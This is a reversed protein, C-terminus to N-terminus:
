FYKKKWNGEKGEKQEGGRGMKWGMWDKPLSERSADVFDPMGHQPQVLSRGQMLVSISIGGYLIPKLFCTWAGLIPRSGVILPGLFLDFLVVTVWMWLTSNGHLSVLQWDLTQSDLLNPWSGQPKEMTIKVM